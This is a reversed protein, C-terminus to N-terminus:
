EMWVAVIDVSTGAWIENTCSWWSASTCCRFPIRRALRLWSHVINNGDGVYVVTKGEISGLKEQVMRGENFL